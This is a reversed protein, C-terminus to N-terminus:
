SVGGTFEDYSNGETNTTDDMVDLSDVTSLGSSSSGGVVNYNNFISSAVMTTELVNKVTKNYLQLDSDLKEVNQLSATIYKNEFSKGPFPYTNNVPKEEWTKLAKWIAEDEQQAITQPMLDSKTLGYGTYDPFRFKMEDFDAKGNQYVPFDELYNRSSYEEISLRWEDFKADNTPFIGKGTMPMVVTQDRTGVLTNNTGAIFVSGDTFISVTKDGSTFINGASYLTIDGDGSISHQETTHHYARAAEVSYINEVQVFQMYSSIGVAAKPANLVIGGVNNIVGEKPYYEQVSQANSHLIIGSADSYLYISKDTKLRASGETSSIDIDNKTALSINGGIKGNLNRLPQLVLDNKPQLYINGGEMVIASGWADKFLLGGNPMIYTGATSAVFVSDTDEDVKNIYNLAQEKSKDSPVEFDGSDLFRKYAVIDNVYALYDRYQLAYLSPLKDSSYQNNFQYTEVKTDPPIYEETNASDSEINDEVALIRNPVRIWNTKELNIAKVSRLSVNGDLAVNLDALGIDAEDTVVGDLKRINAESPRSLLVHLFNGLYGIFGKLRAIGVQREDHLETFDKTGDKNYGQDIKILEDDKPQGLSENPKHTLDFELNLQEEDHTIRTEGMCHFHQYNHSVIRVLDDFLFCQVQALESAKLVSFYQFLGLLVGFDNVIVKEGPLVDTPRNNNLMVLKGTSKGAYGQIHCLDNNTDPIGLIAKNPFERTDTTIDPQPIIGLILCVYTDLIFCFVKSGPQPLGCDKFGILGAFTSMLPIGQLPVKLNPNNPTIEVCYTAPDATLVVGTFFRDHKRLFSFDALKM